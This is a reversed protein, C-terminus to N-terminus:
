GGEGGRAAPGVAREPRKRRAEAKVIEIVHPSPSIPHTHPTAEILTVPACRSTPEM